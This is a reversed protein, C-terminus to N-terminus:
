SSLPLLQQAIYVLLGVTQGGFLLLTEGKRKEGKKGM